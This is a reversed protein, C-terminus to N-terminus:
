ELLIRTEDSPPSARAALDQGEFELISHDIAGTLSQPEASRGLLGARRQRAISALLRYVEVLRPQLEIPEATPKNEAVPRKKV